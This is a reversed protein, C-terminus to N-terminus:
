PQRHTIPTLHNRNRERRYCAADLMERLLHLGLGGAPREQQPM